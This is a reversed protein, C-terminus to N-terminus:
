TTKDKLRYAPIMCATGDIRTGKKRISELRGGHWLQRLFAQIKSNSCGTRDMFEQTSLFEDGEGETVPAGPALMSLLTEQNGDTM